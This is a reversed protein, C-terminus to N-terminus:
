LRYKCMVGHMDPGLSRFRKSNHFIFMPFTCQTLILCEKWQAWSVM